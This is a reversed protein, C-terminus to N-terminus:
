LDGAARRIDLRLPASEPFTQPLGVPWEVRVSLYMRGVTATEGAAWARKLTASKGDPAVTITDFADDIVKVGDMEAVLFCAGATLTSFDADAATDAIVIELDPLLDGRTMEHIM